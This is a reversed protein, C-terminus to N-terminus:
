GEKDKTNFPFTVLFIQFINLNLFFGTNQPTFILSRILFYDLQSKFSCSCCLGKDSISSTTLNENFFESCQFGSETVDM